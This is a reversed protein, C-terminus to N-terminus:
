AANVTCSTTLHGHFLNEYALWICLAVATLYFKLAECIPSCPLPLLSFLLSSLTALMNRLLNVQTEPCCDLAPIPLIHSAPHIWRQGDPGHWMGSGGPCVALIPHSWPCIGNGQLGPPPLEKSSGGSSARASAGHLAAPFWMALAQARPQACLRPELAPVAQTPIDSDRYCRVQVWRGWRCYVTTASALCFSSSPMPFFGPSLLLCLQRWRAVAPSKESSGGLALASARRGVEAAVLVVELSGWAEAGPLTATLIWLADRAYVRPLPLSFSGVTTIPLHSHGGGSRVKKEKVSSWSRGPWQWKDHSPHTPRSHANRPGLGGAHSLSSGCSHM